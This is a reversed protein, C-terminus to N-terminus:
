QQHASLTRCLLPWAYATGPRYRRLLRANADDDRYATEMVSTLQQRATPGTAILVSVLQERQGQLKAMEDFADAYRNAHKALKETQAAWEPASEFLEEIKPQLNIIEQVSARVEQEAEYSTAIRYKLAAM